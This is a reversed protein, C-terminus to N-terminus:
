AHSKLSTEIDHSENTRLETASCKADISLWLLLTGDKKFGPKLRQNAHADRVIARPTPKRVLAGTISM